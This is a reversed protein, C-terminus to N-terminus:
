EDLIEEDSLIEREIDTTASREIDEYFKYTPSEPLFRRKLTAAKDRLQIHVQSPEGISRSSMRTGTGAYVSSAVSRFEKESFKSASTLLADIIDPHDLAFNAYSYQIIGAIAALVKLNDAHAREKLTEHGTKMFRGALLNVYNYMFFQDMGKDVSVAFELAEAILEGRIIEPIDRFASGYPEELDFPLPHYGGSKKGLKNYHKLRDLFFGSVMRPHQNSLKSILQTIWYDDLSDLGIFNELFGRWDEESFDKTTEPANLAAACIDDAVKRNAGAKVSLLLDKALATDHESVRKVLISWDMDAKALSKILAVEEPLLRVEPVNLISRIFWTIYSELREKAPSNSAADLFSSIHRLYEAAKETSKTAEVRLEWLFMLSSGLFQEDTTNALFDQFLLVSYAAWGPPTGPGLVSLMPNNNFIQAEHRVQELLKRSTTPSLSMLAEQAATRELLVDGGTRAYRLLSMMVRFETPFEKLLQERLKVGLSKTESDVKQEGHREFVEVIEDLSEYVMFAPVYRGEKLAATATGELEALAVPGLMKWAEPQYIPLQGRLQQLAEGAVRNGFEGRIARGLLALVARRIKELEPAHTIPGRQMTFVNKHYYEEEWEGDLLKDLVIIPSHQWAAGDAAGENLWREAHELVRWYLEFPVKPRLRALHQLHRHGHSPFQNLPRPDKKGLDWLIDICSEFHEARHGIAYAIDSAAELEAEEVDKGTAARVRVDGSVQLALEPLFYAANKLLKLMGARERGERSKFTTELAAWIDEFPKSKGGVATLAWEARAINELIVPAIIEANSLLPWILDRDPRATWYTAIVFDQILRDTVRHKTGIRYILGREILAKTPATLDDPLALAKTVAKFVPHELSINGTLALGKLLGHEPTGAATGKLRQQLFHDKLEEHTSITGLQYAHNLVLDLYLPIGNTVKLIGVLTGEAIPPTRTKNHAQLDELTLRELKIEVTNATSVLPYGQTYFLSASKEQCILLLKIRGAVFESSSALRKLMGRFDDREDADDVVILVPGTDAKPNSVIGRIAELDLEAGPLVVHVDPYTLADERIADHISHYAFLTKGFGPLGSLIATSKKRDKDRLWGRFSDRSKNRGLAGPIDGDPRGGTIRSYQVLLLNEWEGFSAFTPPVWRFSVFEAAIADASQKPASLNRVSYIVLKKIQEKVEGIFSELEPERTTDEGIICFLPLRRTLAEQFEVDTISKNGLEPWPTGYRSRLVLIMAQCEALKQVSVRAADLPQAAFPMRVGEVGRAKLLPILAQYIDEVDGSGSLFVKPFEPM